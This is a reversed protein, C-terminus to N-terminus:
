KYKVTCLFIYFKKSILKIQYSRQHYSKDNEPTLKSITMRKLLIKEEISLNDQDEAQDLDFLDDYNEDNEGDAKYVITEEPDFHSFDPEEYLIKKLDLKFDKTDFIEGAKYLTHVEQYSFYNKDTKTLDIKPTIPSSSIFNSNSNVNIKCIGLKMLYRFYYGKAVELLKEGIEKELKLRFIVWEVQKQLLLMVLMENSFAVGPISFDKFGDDKSLIEIMKLEFPDKDYENHFDLDFNEHFDLENVTSAKSSIASSHDTDSHESSFLNYSSSKMSRAQSSYMSQNGYPSPPEDLAGLGLSDQYDQSPGPTEGFYSSGPGTQDRDSTLSANLLELREKHTIRTSNGVSGIARSTLYGSGSGGGPLDGDAMGGPGGIELEEEVIDPNVTECIQCLYEGDKELYTDNTCFTCKQNKFRKITSM